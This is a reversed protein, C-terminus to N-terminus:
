VMFNPLIGEVMLYFQYKRNGKGDDFYAYCWRDDIRPTTYMSPKGPRTCRHRGATSRRKLNGKVVSLCM